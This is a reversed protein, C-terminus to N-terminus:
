TLISNVKKGIEAPSHVVHIGYEDLIKKKAKATDDSGGVIAGAHGMTRGTPATEGGVNDFYVDIGNPCKEKLSTYINENKYDIADDFGLENILLDCKEKGGAIGVVRCGKIKAIQGVLSGVAGAAASVLVMDGEKIEGEQLIGFYATMGPMGLYGLFTPLPIDGPYIKNYNEGSSICFEQAGGWGSVFQGVKFEDNNSKIVEGVSGARMVEGIQVPAIYSRSDNMWGRM